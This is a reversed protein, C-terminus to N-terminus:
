ISTEIEENCIENLEFEVSFPPLEYNPNSEGSASYPRACAREWYRPNLTRTRRVRALCWASTLVGVALLLAGAASGLTIYLTTPSSLTPTVDYSSRATFIDSTVEQTSTPDQTTGDEVAESIDDVASTTTMTLHTSIIPQASSNLTSDIICSTNFTVANMQSRIYNLCDCNLLDNAVEHFYELSVYYETQMNICEIATDIIVIYKVDKVTEPFYSPFEQIEQGQCFVVEKTNSIEPYLICSQSPSTIWIVILLIIFSMNGSFIYDARCEILSTSLHITEISITRKKDSGESDFVKVM